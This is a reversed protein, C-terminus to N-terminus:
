EKSIPEDTPGVPTPVPGKPKRLRQLAPVFTSREVVLVVAFFLGFLAMHYPVSLWLNAIEVQQSGYILLGAGLIYGV